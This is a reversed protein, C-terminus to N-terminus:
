DLQRLHKELEHAETRALNGGLFFPDATVEAVSGPPAPLALLGALDLAEIEVLLLGALRGEFADISYTRGDVQFPYRKKVLPDAQINELLAYERDSLYLNTITTQYPGSEPSKFKKALKRAVIQGDPAEMRRLRLDSGRLYRDTIRTFGAAPDIEPPLNRLLFRREFETRAYKDHM